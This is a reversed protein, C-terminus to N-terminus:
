FAQLASMHSGPSTQSLTLIHLFCQALIFFLQENANEGKGTINLGIGCLAANQCM